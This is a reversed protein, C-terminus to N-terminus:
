SRGKKLQKKNAYMRQDALREKEEPDDTACDCEAMGYAISMPVPPQEKENYAEIAKRLKLENKEYLKLLNKSDKGEQVVIFEDGGTRFVRAPEDFSERILAAAGKIARDGETHGHNDNIKKLDNIDLQIIICFGNKKTVLEEEFENFSLRNELGTLGDQHALRKMVDAEFSKRSIEVLQGVEYIALVVIFILLGIRTFRAMDTNGGIYYFILDVIGSFMAVAFTGLVVIQDSETIRKRVFARVVHFIGLVVALLFNIHTFLLVDHYDCIGFGIVIIHTLLNLAVLIEMLKLTKSELERTVCLILSIGPLPLLILSGYNVMRVLGLDSFFTELMFTGSNSWVALIMTLIGISVAEIQNRTRFEFFLALVVLILGFLFTIFSFVLKWLNEGLFDKFYAASNQFVANEFGSWMGKGMATATIRLEAEGDFYPMNIEHVLNGYSQGTYPKMEPYFDYILEGIMYARFSINTSIFCLDGGALGGAVITRAVTVNKDDDFELEHLDAEEDTVNGAQDVYYWGYRADTVDQETSGTYRFPTFLALVSFILVMSGAILNLILVTKKM